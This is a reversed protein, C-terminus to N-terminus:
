NVLSPPEQLYTVVKRGPQLCGWMQSPAGNTPYIFLTGFLMVLVCNGRILHNTKNRALAKAGVIFSWIWLKLECGSTKHRHSGFGSCGLHHFMHHWDGSSPGHPHASGLHLPSFPALLILHNERGSAMKTGPRSAAM